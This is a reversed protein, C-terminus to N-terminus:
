EKDRGHQTEGPALSNYAILALILAVGIPVAVYVPTRWKEDSSREKELQRNQLTSVLVGDCRFRSLVDDFVQDAVTNSLPSFNLRWTETRTVDYFAWQVYRYLERASECNTMNLIHIIFYTYGAIPYSENGDAKVLDVNFRHYSRICGKTM